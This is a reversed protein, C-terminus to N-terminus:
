VFYIHPEEIWIGREMFEKCATPDEPGEIFAGEQNPIKLPADLSPVKEAWTPIEEPIRPQEALTEFDVVIPPANRPLGKLILRNFARVMLATM